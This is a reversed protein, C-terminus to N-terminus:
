CAGMLNLYPWAKKMAESELWGVPKIIVEIASDKKFHKLHAERANQHIKATDDSPLSVM